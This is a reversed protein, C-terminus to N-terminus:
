STHGYYRSYLEYWWLHWNRHGCGFGQSVTWSRVRLNLYSLKPVVTRGYIRMGKSRICTKSWKSVELGEYGANGWFQDSPLGLGWKGGGKGSCIRYVKQIRKDIGVKVEPIWWYDDLKLIKPKKKSNVMIRKSREFLKFCM